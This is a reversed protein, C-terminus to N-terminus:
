DKRQQAPLPTRNGRGTRAAPILGPRDRRVRQVWKDIAYVSVGFRTALAERRPTGDPLRPGTEHWARAFEEDSPTGDLTRVDGPNLEALLLSIELGLGEDWNEKVRALFATAIRALDRIPTHTLVATDVPLAEAHRVTFAEVEDGAMVLEWRWGSPESVVVVEEHEFSGEPGTRRDRQYGTM